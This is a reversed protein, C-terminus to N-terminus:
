AKRCPAEEPPVDVPPSTCPTRHVPSTHTCPSRQACPFRAPTERCIAEYLTLVHKGYLNQERCVQFSLVTLNGNVHPEKCIFTQRLQFFCSMRKRKQRLGVCLDCCPLYGTRDKPPLLPRVSLRHARESGRQSDAPGTHCRTSFVPIEAWSERRAKLAGM